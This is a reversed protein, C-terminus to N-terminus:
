SAGENPCSLELLLMRALFCKKQALKLRFTVGRTQTHVSSRGVNVQAACVLPFTPGFRGLVIHPLYGRFKGSTWLTIYNCNIHNLQKLQRPQLNITHQNMCTLQLISAGDNVQAKNVERQKHTTLSVCPHTPEHNCKLGSIKGAPKNRAAHGESVNERHRCTVQNGGM